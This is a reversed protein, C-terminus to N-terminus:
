PAGRGQSQGRRASWASMYQGRVLGTLGKYQAALPTREQMNIEEGTILSPRSEVMLQALAPHVAQGLPTKPPTV